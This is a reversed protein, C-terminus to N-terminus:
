DERCKSLPYPATSPSPRPSEVSSFPPEQVGQQEAHSHYSNEFRHEFRTPLLEPPLVSSFARQRLKGFEIRVIKELPNAKTYSFAPSEPL